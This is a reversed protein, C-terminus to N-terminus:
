GVYAAARKVLFAKERENRTLGAARDSRQRGFTGSSAATLPIKNSNRHRAM